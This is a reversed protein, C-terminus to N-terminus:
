KDIEKLFDEITAKITILTNRSFPVNIVVKVEKKIENLICFQLLNIRADLQTIVVSDGEQTLSTVSKM